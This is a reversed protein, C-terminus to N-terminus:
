ESVPRGRVLRLCAGCGIRKQLGYLQGDGGLFKARISRIETHMVEGALECRRERKQSRDAGPGAADLDAGGHDIHAILVRKVHSLVGTRGIQNGAPAKLEAYAASRGFLDDFSPTVEAVRRRLSLAVGVHGAAM